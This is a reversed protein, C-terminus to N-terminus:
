VPVDCTGQKSYLPHHAPTVILLDKKIEEGTERKSSPNEKHVMEALSEVVEAPTPMDLGEPLSLLEKGEEKLDLYYFGAYFIFAVISVLVIVCWLFVWGGNMGSLDAAGYAYAAAFIAGVLQYNATVTASEEKGFKLAYVNGPIYRPYGVFLGLLVLLLGATGLCIGENSCGNSEVASTWFLLGFCTAILVLGMFLIMRARTESSQRELLFAGGVISLIIGVSIFSVMGDDAATSESSQVTDYIWLPIFIEFMGVVLYLAHGINMLTFRADCFWLINKKAISGVSIFLAMLHNHSKTTIKQAIESEEQPQLGENSQSRPAIKPM